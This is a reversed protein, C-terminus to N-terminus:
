TKLDPPPPTATLSVDGSREKAASEANKPVGKKRLAVYITLKGTLIVGTGILATTMPSMPPVFQAWLNSLQEVEDETFDMEDIKTMLALLKGITKTAVEVLAKNVAEAEPHQEIEEAGEEGEKDPEPPPM